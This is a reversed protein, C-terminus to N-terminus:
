IINGSADFQISSSSSGSSEEASELVDYRNYLTNKLKIMGNRNSLDFSVEDKYAGLKDPTILTIVDPNNPDAVLKYKDDSKGLNTLQDQLRKVLAKTDKSNMDGIAKDIKNKYITRKNNADSIKPAKEPKEEEIYNKDIKYEEVPNNYAGLKKLSEQLAIKQILKYEEPNYGYTDRTEDNFVKNMRGADGVQVEEEYIVGGSEDRLPQEGDTKIFQYFFQTEGDVTRSTTFSRVVSNLDQNGISATSSIKAYVSPKIEESIMAVNNLRVQVPYRGVNDQKIATEPEGKFRVDLTGDKDTIKSESWTAALGNEGKFVEPVIAGVQEGLQYQSANPGTQAQKLTGSWLVYEDSEIGLTKNAERISEGKAVKVTELQNTKPNTRSEYTVVGEEQGSEIAGSALYAPNTQYLDVSGPKSNYGKQGALKMAEATTNFAAIDSPLRKTYNQFSSKKALDDAREPYDGKTAIALSAKKYAVAQMQLSAAFGDAELNQSILNDQAEGVLNEVNNEIQNVLKLNANKRAQAMMSAKTSTTRIDEGLKNIKKVFADSLSTDVQSTPNRYSM